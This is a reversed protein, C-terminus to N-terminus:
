HDEGAEERRRRERLRENSARAKSLNERAKWVKQERLCADLAWKEDNCAGFVKGIPNADHCRKFAIVVDRCKPHNELTLPPHM